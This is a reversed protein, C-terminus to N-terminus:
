FQPEQRAGHWVHLIAVLKKEESVDYFIRYDRFGIQRLPGQAGKPYPPGIFPFTELLGVHQIIGRGIKEAALPNHEAIYEYIDKLDGLAAESWIIKYEM